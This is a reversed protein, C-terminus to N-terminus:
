DTPPHPSRRTPTLVEKRNPDIMRVISYTPPTDALAGGVAHRHVFSGNEPVSASLPGQADLERPSAAPPVEDSSAGIRAGSIETVALRPRDRLRELRYRPPKGQLHLCIGARGDADTSPRAEASPLAATHPPSRDM